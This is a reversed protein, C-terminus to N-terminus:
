SQAPGMGTMASLPVNAQFVPMAGNGLGGGNNGMPNM